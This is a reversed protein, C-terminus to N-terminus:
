RVLQQSPRALPPVAIEATEIDLTTITTSSMPSGLSSVFEALSEGGGV